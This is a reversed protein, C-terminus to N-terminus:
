SQKVVSQNEAKELLNKLKDSVEKIDETTVTVAVACEIQEKRIFELNELKKQLFQIQQSELYKRYVALREEKITDCHINTLKTLSERRTIWHYYSPYAKYVLDLKELIWEFRKYDWRRLYTLYKKRKDILEKLQVKVRKNRPFKDMVVQMRRIHATQKAVSFNNFKLLSNFIFSNRLDYM